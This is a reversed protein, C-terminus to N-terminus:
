NRQWGRQWETSLQLLSVQPGYLDAVQSRAYPECLPLLSMISTSPHSQLGLYISVTQVLKHSSYQRQPPEATSARYYISMSELLDLSPLGQYFCSSPALLRRLNTDVNGIEDGLGPVVDPYGIM